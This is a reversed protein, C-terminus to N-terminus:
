SFDKLAKLLAQVKKPNAKIKELDIEKLLSSLETRTEKAKKDGSSTDLEDLKEAIAPANDEIAGDVVQGALMYIQSPNKLKSLKLYSERSLKGDAYNNFLKQGTAFDLKTLRTNAELVPMPFPTKDELYRDCVEKRFNAEPIQGLLKLPKIGLLGQAAKEYLHEDITLLCLYHTVFSKFSVQAVEEYKSLIAKFSDQLTADAKKKGNQWAFASRVLQIIEERPRDLQIVLNVLINELFDVPNLDKRKLNEISAALMARKKDYLRIKTYIEKELAIAVLRRRQGYVLEYSGDAVPRVCIEVEQGNDAVSKQLDALEVEDIWKRPHDEAKSILHPDVSFIVEAGKKDCIRHEIIQYGGSRILEAVPHNQPLDFPLEIEKSSSSKQATRQFNKQNFVM